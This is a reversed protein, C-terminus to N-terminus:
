IWKFIKPVFYSILPIRIIKKIIPFSKKLHIIIAHYGVDDSTYLEPGLFEIKLHFKKILYNAFKTTTVAYLNEIKNSLSWRYILSYLLVVVKRREEKNLTPLTALRSVEASKEEKTFVGEISNKFENEIMFMEDKVIRATGLVEDNSLVVFIIATKDYSDSDLHNVNSEVWQLGDVFVDHRLRFIKGLLDVETKEVIRATLNQDQIM